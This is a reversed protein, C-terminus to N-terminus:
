DDPRRTKTKPQSTMHRYQWDYQEDWDRLQSTAASLESNPESVQPRETVFEAQISSLWAQVLSASAADRQGEAERRTATELEARLPSMKVDLEVREM